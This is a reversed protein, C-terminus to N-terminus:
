RKGIREQLATERFRQLSYEDTPSTEGSRRLVAQLQAAFEAVLIKEGNVVAVYDDSLSAVDPSSADQSLETHITEADPSPTQTQRDEKTMGCGWVMYCVFVVISVFYLLKKM